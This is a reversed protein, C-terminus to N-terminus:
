GLHFDPIGADVYCGNKDQGRKFLRPTDQKRRRWFHTKLSSFSFSKTVRPNASSTADSLTRSSVSDRRPHKSVTLVFPKAVGM